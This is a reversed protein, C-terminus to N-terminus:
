LPESRLKELEKVADPLVPIVSKIDELTLRGARKQMEGGELIRNIALKPEGNNYSMIRLRVTGADRKWLEKDEEASYRSRKEYQM